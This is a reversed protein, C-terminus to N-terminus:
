PFVDAIVPNEYRFSPFQIREKSHHYTPFIIMFGSSSLDICRECKTLWSRSDLWKSVRDCKLFESKSGFAGYQIEGNGIFCTFIIGVFRLIIRLSIFSFDSQPLCKRFTDINRGYFKHFFYSNWCKKMEESSQPNGRKGFISLIIPESQSKSISFDRKKFEKLCIGNERIASFIAWEFYDLIHRNDGTCLLSVAYICIHNYRNEGITICFDSIEREIGCEIESISFDRHLCSCRPIETIIPRYSECIM